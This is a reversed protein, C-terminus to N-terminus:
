ASYALKEILLPHQLHIGGVEGGEGVAVGLDFAQRYV